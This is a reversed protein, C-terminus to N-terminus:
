WGERRPSPLLGREQYARVNRVTTEAVEALEEIRQDRASVARTFGSGRRATM